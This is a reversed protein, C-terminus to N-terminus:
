CNTMFSTGITLEMSMSLSAIYINIYILLIKKGFKQYYIKGMLFISKKAMMNMIKIMYNM